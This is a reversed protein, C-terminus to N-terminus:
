ELYVCQVYLFVEFVVGLVVLGFEGFYGVVVWDGGVFCLQVGVGKEVVCYTGLDVVVGFGVDFFCDGEGFVVWYGVRGVGVMVYECLFVVMVTMLFGGVGLVRGLWWSVVVFVIIFVILSFIRALGDM